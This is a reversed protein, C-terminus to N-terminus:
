QTTYKNRLAKLPPPPRIRLTRHFLDRLNKIKLRLDLVRTERSDSHGSWLWWKTEMNIDGLLLSLNTDIPSIECNEVSNIALFLPKTLFTNKINRVQRVVGLSLKCNWSKKRRLVEIARLAKILACSFELNNM